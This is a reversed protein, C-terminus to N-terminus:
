EEQKWSDITEESVRDEIHAFTITNLCYPTHIPDKCIKNFFLKAFILFRFSKSDRWGYAYYDEDDNGYYVDYRKM